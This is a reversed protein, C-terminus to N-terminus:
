PSAAGSPVISRGDNEILHYNKLCTYLKEREAPSPLFLKLDLPKRSSRVEPALQAADRAHYFLTVKTADNRSLKAYTIIEGVVGLRADVFVFEAPVSSDLQGDKLARYFTAVRRAPDFKIMQETRRMMGFGQQRALFFSAEVLMASVTPVSPSTSGAAPAGGSRLYAKWQEGLPNGPAIFRKYSNNTLLKFVVGQATALSDVLMHAEDETDALVEMLEDTITSPLNVQEPADHKVHKHIIERAIDIKAVWDEEQNFTEVSSWLELNESCHEEQCARMLLQWGFETQLLQTLESAEQSSVASLGGQDSRQLGAALAGMSLSARHAKLRGVKPHVPATYLSLAYSAGKPDEPATPIEAQLGPVEEHSEYCIANSRSRTATEEETMECVVTEPLDNKVHAPLGDVTLDFLTHAISQNSYSIPLRSLLSSPLSLDEDDSDDASATSSSSSAAAVAVPAKWVDRGKGGVFRARAARAYSGHEKSEPLPQNVIKPNPNKPTATWAERIDSPVLSAVSYYADQVRNRQTAELTVLSGVITTRTDAVSCPLISGLPINHTALGSHLQAVYHQLIEFQAQVTALMYAQHNLMECSLKAVGCGCQCGRWEKM